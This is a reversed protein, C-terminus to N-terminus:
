ISLGGDVTLRAGTIYSANEGALFVVAKAIDETTGMRGLPTMAVQPAANPGDAPNMDTDTAGPQIVNVTIGRPGFDRAWGRGLQDIAAKSAAYEAVGPVPVRHAVISGILVVRGGDSLFRSAAHTTVVTGMVNTAMMQQVGELLELDLQDVTGMVAVGASNVLVDIQGGLFEAAQEVATSAEHPVSQDAQVALAKVGLAVLDAVVEEAQERSKRYTIAVNAGERALERAIGAGIGRSGGTVLATRGTLTKSM